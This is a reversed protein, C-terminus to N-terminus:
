KKAKAGTAAKEDDPLARGGGPEVPARSFRALEQDLKKQQRDGAVIRWVLTLIGGAVVVGVAVAILTEMM